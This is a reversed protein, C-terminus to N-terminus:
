RQEQIEVLSADTYDVQLLEEGDDDALSMTWRGDSYSFASKMVEYRMLNPSESVQGVGDFKLTVRSNAYDELVVVLTDAKRTASLVKGDTFIVSRLANRRNRSFMATMLGMAM